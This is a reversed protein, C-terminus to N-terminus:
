SVEEKSKKKMGSVEEEENEEIVQIINNRLRLTSIGEDYARQV